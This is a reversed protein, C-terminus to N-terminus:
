GLSLLPPEQFLRVAPAVVATLWRSEHRKAIAPSVPLVTVSVGDDAAVPMVTLTPLRCTKRPRSAACPIAFTCVAMRSGPFTLVMLQGAIVGTAPAEPVVGSCRMHRM